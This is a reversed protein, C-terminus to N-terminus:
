YLVKVPLVCICPIYTLFSAGCCLPKSYLYLIFVCDITPILFGNAHLNCSAVQAGMGIGIGM